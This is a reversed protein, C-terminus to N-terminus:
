RHLGQYHKWSKTMSQVIKCTPIRSQQAAIARGAPAGGRSVSGGRGHFFSIQIGHKEGAQYIKTQAKSVEWTSCVCGGDKNSDSYGVMIEQHGGFEKITRQVFPIELLDELIAPGNRLDDITELLPVILYVLM